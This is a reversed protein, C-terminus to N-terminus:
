NRFYNDNKIKQHMYVSGTKVAKKKLYDRTKIEKMIDKTLWPTYESRVRRTIPPAHMDAVFLFRNIWDMYIENVDDSEQDFDIHFIESLDAIFNNKNYGKYQRTNIMKPEGRLISLKRTICILSHDSIGVRHVQARVIIEAKNTFALDILTSTNETVRTPEKIQQEFQYLEMVDKLKDVHSQM